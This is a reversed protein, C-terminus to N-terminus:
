EGSIAESSQVGQGKEITVIMRNRNDGDYSLVIADGAKTRDRLFNIPINVQLNTADGNDLLHDSKVTYKRYVILAM